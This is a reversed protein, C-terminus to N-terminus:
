SLTRHPVGLARPRLPIDGIMSFCRPDFSEIEFWPHDGTQYGQQLWVFCCHLWGSDDIACQVKIFHLFFKFWYHAFWCVARAVRLKDRANTVTQRLTKSLLKIRGGVIFLHTAFYKSSRWVKTSNLFGLWFMSSHLLSYWLSSKRHKRLIGARITMHVYVPVAWLYIVLSM